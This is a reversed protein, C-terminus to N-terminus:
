KLMKKPKERSMVPPLPKIEPLGPEKTQELEALRALHALHGAVIKYSTWDGNERWVALVSEADKM